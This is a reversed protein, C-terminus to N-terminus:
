LIDSVTIKICIMAFPLELKNQKIDMFEHPYFGLFHNMFKLALIGGSRFDNRPNESEFHLDEFAIKRRPDVLKKLASEHDVNDPNFPEYCVKELKTLAMDEEINLEYSKHILNSFCSFFSKCMAVSKDKISRRTNIENDFSKKNINLESYDKVLFSSDKSKSGEESGSLFSKSKYSENAFSKDLKVDGSSGNEICTSSLKMKKFDSLNNSVIPSDIYVKEKKNVIPSDM